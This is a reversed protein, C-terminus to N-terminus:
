EKKTELIVKIEAVRESAFTIELLAKGEPNFTFFSRLAEGFKDLFYFSSEPTLGASPLTVQPSQAFATSSAFVFLAVLVFANSILINKM